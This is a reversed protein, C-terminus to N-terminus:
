QRVNVPGAPIPGASVGHCPATMGNSWSGLLGKLTKGLVGSKQYRLVPLSGQRFRLSEFELPFKVGVTKLVADEVLRVMELVTLSPNSGEYNNLSPLKAFEQM